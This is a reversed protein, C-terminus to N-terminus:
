GDLGELIFKALVRADEATGLWSMGRKTWMEIQGTPCHESPPWVTVHLEGTHSAENEKGLDKLNSCFTLQKVAM